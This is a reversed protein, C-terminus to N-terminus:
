RPDSHLSKFPPELKILTQTPDQVEYARDLWEFVKNTDELGSYVRAIMYPSFYGRKSRDLFDDLIKQAEEINGAKGYLYGLYSAVNPINKFRQAISIAKDYKGKAWYIYMFGALGWLNNKDLELTKKSVETAQDFQGLILLYWTHFFRGFSNLPDLEISHKSVLAAEDVHGLGIM